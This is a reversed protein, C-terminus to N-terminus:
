GVCGWSARNVEGASRTRGTSAPRGIACTWWCPAAVEGRGRGTGKKGGRVAHRHGGALAAGRRGLGLRWVLQLRGLQSPQRQAATMRAATAGGEGSSGDSGAHESAGHCWIRAVTSRGRRTANHHRAHAHSLEAATTRVHRPHSHWTHHGLYVRSRPRGAVPDARKM